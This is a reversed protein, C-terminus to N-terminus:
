LRSQDVEPWGDKWSVEMIKLKPKGEDSNDYAHFILYDKGDFTYISNHGAGAWRANGTIVPTGGGETMPKGAKDTYPGSINESRGAMVKYTSDEGRCCFDFSVFLYYWDDKKFIFPAEIAADGPQTDETFSHRERKAITYWEEPRAVSLLDDSLRVLKMGGWFSGFTLWPAGADDFVLNPDIANWLDRNPVSQVVIGHDTWKYDKDGPSLTVNTAVGIASTNKAFASVSYYLYYRGNYFSIDPAWIHNKFGPVVEESWSPATQFVPKEKKWTKLDPSSFVSVGMGTCFLYYRDGEKAVVPDHVSIDQACGPSIIYLVALFFLYKRFNM